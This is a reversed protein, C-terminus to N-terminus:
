IHLFVEETWHQLVAIYGPVSFIHKVFNEFIDM